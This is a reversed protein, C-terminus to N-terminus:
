FYYGTEFEDEALVATRLFLLWGEPLTVGQRQVPLRYLLLSGVPSSSLLLSALPANRSGCWETYSKM